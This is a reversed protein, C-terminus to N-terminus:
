VLRFKSMLAELELVKDHLQKIDGSSDSALKLSHSSIDSIMSIDATIERTVATQEEAAAAISNIMSQVHSAGAVIEELAGVAGTSQSVGLEVLRRNDETCIVAEQTGIQIAQIIGSVEKTASTTREALARVEDAVVAFGRGFEGARAAEIAANLALLNTQEAIGEIVKIVSGIKEGHSGLANMQLSMEEMQASVQQISTVMEVIVDRGSSAVGESSSAQEYTTTSQQAVEAITLSLEESATAILQAKDAQESAGQVLDQSVITLGSTVSKVEGTVTNISGILSLLSQQMRNISTALSALEDGSKDVISDASLDGDAVKQAVQELRTLRTTISQSLVYAVSCSVIVTISFLVAITYEITKFSDSLSGVVHSSNAVEASTIDDLITELPFLYSDFYSRVMPIVESYRYDGKLMPLAKSEFAQTFQEMYQEMELLNQYGISGSDQYSKLELLVEAFQRKNSYYGERAGSVGSVTGVADRYVDGMQDLLTLYAVVEPVVNTRVDEAVTHSEVIEYAIISVMLTLLALIAGFGLYLKKRVSLIM